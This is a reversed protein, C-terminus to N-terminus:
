SPLSLSSRQYLRSLVESVCCLCQMLLSVVCWEGVPCLKIFPWMEHVVKFKGREDAAFQALIGDVVKQGYVDRPELQFEIINNNRVVGRM